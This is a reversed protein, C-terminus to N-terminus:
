PGWKTSALAAVILSALAMLVFYAKVPRPDSWKM